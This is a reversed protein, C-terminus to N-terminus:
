GPTDLPKADSFQYSRLKSLVAIFVDLSEVSKFKISIMNPTEDGPNIKDPVVHTRGDEIKGINGPEGQMMILVPHSDDKGEHLAFHIDGEGLELYIKNGYGYIM